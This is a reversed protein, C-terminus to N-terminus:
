VLAGGGFAIKEVEGDSAENNQEFLSALLSWLFLTAVLLAATGLGESVIPMARIAGGAGFASMVNSVGSITNISLSGALAGLAHLLFFLLWHSLLIISLIRKM